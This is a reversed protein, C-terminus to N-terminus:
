RGSNLKTSCIVKNPTTKKSNLLFKKSQTGTVTLAAAKKYIWNTVKGRFGKNRFDCKPNGIISIVVPKSHIKAAMLTLLGRPM